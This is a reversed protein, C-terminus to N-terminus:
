NLIRRNNSLVQSFSARLKVSDSNELISKTKATRLASKFRNLASNHDPCCFPGAVAFMTWFLNNIKEELRQIDSKTALGSRQAVVVNAISEAHDPNIGADKLVQATGIAKINTNM